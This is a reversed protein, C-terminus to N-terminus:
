SMEKDNGISVKINDDLANQVCKLQVIVIFPFYLIAGTESHGHNKNKM